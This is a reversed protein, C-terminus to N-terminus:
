SVSFLSPKSPMHPPARALAYFTFLYDLVALSILHPQQSVFRPQQLFRHFHLQRPHLPFSGPQL